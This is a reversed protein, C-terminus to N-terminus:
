GGASLADPGDNRGHRRRVSRYEPLPRIDRIFHANTGWFSEECICWVGNVIDDMFRGRNEICEGLVLAALAKRRGFSATEWDSRNGDRSYRMFATAPLAPWVVGSYAQARSLIRAKLGEELSLWRERDGCRPVCGEPFRWDTQPGAKLNWVAQEMTENM